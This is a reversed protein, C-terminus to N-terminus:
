EGDFHVSDTLRVHLLSRTLTLDEEDRIQM